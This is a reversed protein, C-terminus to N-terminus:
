ALGLLAYKRIKGDTKDVNAVKETLLLLKEEPREPFALRFTNKFQQLLLFHELFVLFLTTEKVELDMKGLPQTSEILEEYHDKM